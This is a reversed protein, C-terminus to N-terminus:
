IERMRSIAIERNKIASQQLAQMAEITRTGENQFLFYNDFGDLWGFKGVFTAGDQSSEGSIMDKMYGTEERGPEGKGASERERGTDTHAAELFTVMDDAGKEAFEAVIDGAREQLTDSQRQITLILDQFTARRAM